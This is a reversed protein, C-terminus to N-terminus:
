LAEDGELIRKLKKLARHYKSLVTPLALDLIHAIERHKLGTTAHLLVIRQEEESLSYLAAHLVM